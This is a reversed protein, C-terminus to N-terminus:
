SDAIMELFGERDDNTGTEAEDTYTRVITYNNTDAWEKIDHLQAEISEFRQNDSSYRAYAVAKKIKSDM